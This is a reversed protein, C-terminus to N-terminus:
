FSKGLQFKSVWQLKAAQPIAFLSNNYELYHFFCINIWHTHTHKHDLVTFCLNVAFWIALLKLM